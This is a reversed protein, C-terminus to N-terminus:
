PPAPRQELEREVIECMGHLITRHVEQVRPTSRGPVNIHIDVMRGILGGDGGTLGITTIERAKAATLAAIVNPSGGSTSIALAVDGARGLGEIQRAFVRSYTYDNGVGTLVSTDTTLAIAALAQRERMFRGVLEAALHQSDAASGGNGFVLMKGGRALAISIAMAANVIPAADQELVLQHLRISEAFVNRILQTHESAMPVGATPVMISFFSLPAFVM